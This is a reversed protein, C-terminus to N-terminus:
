SQEVAQPEVHQTTWDLLPRLVGAVTGAYLGRASDTEISDVVLFRVADHELAHTHVGDLVAYVAATITLAGEALMNAPITCASLFRGTANPDRGYVARPSLDASSFLCLGEENKCLIGASLRKGPRLVEYEIEIQVPRRIDLAESVHGADDRVRVARLRVYEDGPAKHVDPWERAATMGLGSDLYMSVVKASPGDVLVEGDQLMITRPCLRTIAPMNHSVFLVTRGQQGVDQMKDLCKRQFRADGVALVEDVLLIEPELHAAVAFALRLYMGSSFHKVPTDIFREVEAFAVIEDFKRAIERRAMGLIAGNLFINERGTLEPHFGTGVELLSGIRGYLDINGTTPETIRALLKLLTSKGAGNRGIIGVVEGPQIEFSVDKVAWIHPRPAHGNRRLLRVPAQALRAMSDRLSGYPARAEGLRYRKGLNEVKIIPQVM